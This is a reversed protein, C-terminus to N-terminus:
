TGQTDHTRNTPDAPDPSTQKDTQKNITYKTRRTITIIGGDTVHCVTPPDPRAILLCNHPYSPPPCRSVLEKDPVPGPGECLSM